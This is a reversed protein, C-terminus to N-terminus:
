NNHKTKHEVLELLTKSGDINTYDLKVFGYIPNFYATLATKGLSSTAEAEIVFCDITGLATELTKTATIEYNMKNEIEGEWLKWRKDAWQDGIKLQWTWKTGVAYPAKIYPFPNLELIRFYKDRPPHIWVNKENEIAGSMSYGKENGNKYILATQNYDPKYKVLPNGNAVRITVHHITTSDSPNDPVFEWNKRDESIKFYSTKNDPTTHEFKYKFSSGVTYIINNHNYRNQNVVTSDFKEVLIGDDDEVLKYNIKTQEGTSQCYASTIVLSSIIFHLLKM